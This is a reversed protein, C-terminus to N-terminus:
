ARATAARLPTAAAAAAAAAAGVYSQHPRDRHSARVTSTVICLVRLTVTRTM